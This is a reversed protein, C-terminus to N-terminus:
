KIKLDNLLSECMIPTDSGPVTLSMKIFTSEALREGMAQAANAKEVPERIFMAGFRRLVRQKLSIPVPYTTAGVFFLEKIASGRREWCTDLTAIGGPAALTYNIHIQRKEVDFYVQSQPRSDTPPSLRASTQLAASRLRKIGFDFQTVPEAQLNDFVDGIAPRCDLMFASFLLGLATLYRKM